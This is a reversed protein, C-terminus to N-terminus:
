SWNRVATSLWQVPSYHVLSTSQVPQSDSFIMKISKLLVWEGTPIHPLRVAKSRAVYMTGTLESHRCYEHPDKYGTHLSKETTYVIPVQSWNRPSWIPKTTQCFRELQWQVVSYIPVSLHVYVILLRIAHEEGVRVIKLFSAWTISHNYNGDVIQHRDLFFATQSTINHMM